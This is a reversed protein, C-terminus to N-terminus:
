INPSIKQNKMAETIESHVRVYHSSQISIEDLFWQNLKDKSKQINSQLQVDKELDAMVWKRDCIMCYIFNEKISLTKHCIPCKSNQKRNM